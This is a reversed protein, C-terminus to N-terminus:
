DRRAGFVDFLALGRHVCRAERRLDDVDFRERELVRALEHRVLRVIATTSKPALLVVNLTSRFRL